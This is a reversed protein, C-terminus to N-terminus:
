FPREMHNIPRRPMNKRYSIINPDYCKVMPDQKFFRMILGIPTILAFFIIGLIVRTNIWGLGHGIKMWLQYIPKLWLPKFWGLLLFLLGIEWFIASISKSSLLPFLLGFGLSLVGAMMLGFKRLEIIM